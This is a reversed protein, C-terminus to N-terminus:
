SAEGSPIASQRKQIVEETTKVIIDFANRVYKEEANPNGSVVRIISKGACTSSTIFVEGRRNILESIEKTVANAEREAQADPSPISDATLADDKPKSPVDASGNMAHHRVVASPTVRFCTLAFRPPAIVEFLDRRGEILGKFVDGIKVSKRIHAKMGELGYSRM